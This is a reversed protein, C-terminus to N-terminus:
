QGEVEKLKGTNAVYKLIPFSRNRKPGRRFGLIGLDQLHRVARVVDNRDCIVEQMFDEYSVVKMYLCKRLTPLLAAAVRFTTRRRRARASKSNRRRKPPEEVEFAYQIFTRTM